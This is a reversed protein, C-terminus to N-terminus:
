ALANLPSTRVTIIAVILVLVCALVSAEFTKWRQTEVVTKKSGRLDAM